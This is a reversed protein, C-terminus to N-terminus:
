CGPCTPLNDAQFGAEILLDKTVSIETHMDGKEGAADPLHRVPVTGVFTSVGAASGYVETRAQGVPVGELEARVGDVTAVSFTGGTLKSGGTTYTYGYGTSSHNLLINGCDDSVGSANFDLGNSLLGYAGAVGKDMTKMTMSDFSGVYFLSQATTIEAEFEPIVDTNKTRITVTASGSQSAMQTLAGESAMGPIVNMRNFVEGGVPVEGGLLPEIAPKVSANLGYNEDFHDIVTYFCAGSNVDLMDPRQTDLFDSYDYNITGTYSAASAAGTLGVLAFAIVLATIIKTNM